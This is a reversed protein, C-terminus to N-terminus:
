ADRRRHNRLGEILYDVLTESLKDLEEPLTEVLLEGRLIVRHQLARVANLVTVYALHSDLDPRISGDKIGREILERLVADDSPPFVERLEERFGPGVRSGAFYADFEALFLNYSRFRPSLWHGKLYRSLGELGSLSEGEDDMTELWHEDGLFEDFIRKVLALALDSKDQFYRYLSTRSLGTAETIDKMQTDFFGKELFIRWATDLILNRTEETQFIM